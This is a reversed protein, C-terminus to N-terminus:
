KVAGALVRAAPPPPMPAPPQPQVAPAAHPKLAPPRAAATNGQPRSAHKPRTDKQIKGTLDALRVDEYGKRRAMIRYDFAISSAGGGLERVEFSTLSKRTVYLGKCDGNPTLFVHYDIGTNVTQAYNSELTVVAAGNHLQGSGADEMWNDAAQVSYLAVDQSQNVTAHGGVSGSCTLNGNVFVDCYGGYDSYTALVIASNSGDTQNEVFLTAVNTASNYATIASHDDATALIGANGESTDGWLGAGTNMLDRGTTSYISSTGATGVGTDNLVQGLVGIGGSSTSGEGFVGAGSASLTIGEVGYAIGTTAFSHGEVAIGDPSFVQGLVGLTSGTTATADGFIATGSASTNEGEVAYNNGTATAVNGYIAAGSPSAIVGYVGYGAGTTTGATGWVGVGTSGASIGFVGTAYGTTASNSGYVAAGSASADAGYVGYTSGSTNPNSGYVGAGASSAANGYVGFTSGTAATATGSVGAGATSASVGAVGTTIGSTPTVQGEVGTGTSSASTGYVGYTAGSSATAQGEVGAGATSASTGLVGTTTGTAASATGQVGIGSTSASGGGIADGSANSVQLKFTTPTAGIGVNGSKQVIVSNGLASAGSWLPVTGATGSGTVSTAPSADPKASSSAAVARAPAIPSGGPANGATGALAFASAPLGGLTQADVAKLAYPVSVLLVRQPAPQGDIQVELWRAEGSAFLNIPLGAPQTAGIQATYGGTSDLTVNQTEMWLPAGGQEDKYLSFTVGAVGTKPKGDPSTAVGWFTVLQTPAPQSKEQALAPSIASSLLLGAVGALTSFVPKRTSM